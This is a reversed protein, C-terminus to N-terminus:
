SQAIKGIHLVKPLFNWMGSQPPWGWVLCSGGWGTAYWIHGMVRNCMATSSGCCDHPVARQTSEGSALSLM